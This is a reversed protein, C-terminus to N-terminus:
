DGDIVVVLRNDDDGDDDDVDNIATDRVTSMPNSKHRDRHLTEEQRLQASNWCHGSDFSSVKPLINNKEGRSQAMVPNCNGGHYETVMLHHALVQDSLRQQQVEPPFRVSRNIFMAKEPKANHPHDTSVASDDVVSYAVDKGADRDGSNRGRQLPDQPILDDAVPADVETAAVPSLPPLISAGTTFVASALMQQVTPAMVALPATSQVPARSLLVPPPPAASLRAGSCSERRLQENLVLQGSGFMKATSRCSDAMMVGASGPPRCNVMMQQSLSRRVAEEKAASAVVPNHHLLQAHTYLNRMLQDYAPLGGGAALAAESPMRMRFRNKSGKPRGRRRILSLDNQHSAASFRQDVPHFPVVNPPRPIVDAPVQPYTQIRGIGAQRPLVDTTGTQALKAFQEELKEMPWGTCSVPVGGGDPPLVNQRHDFAHQHQQTSLHGQYKESPQGYYSGSELASSAAAAAAAAAAAHKSSNKVDFQREQWSIVRERAVLQQELMRLEREKDNLVATKTQILDSKRQFDAEVCAIDVVALGSCNSAPCDMVVCVCVCVYM